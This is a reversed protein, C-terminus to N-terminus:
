NKLFTDAKDRAQYRRTIMEFIDDGSVGINDGGLKKSMGSVGADKKAGAGKGIKSMGGDGYGGGSGAGASSASGGGGGVDNTLSGIKAHAAAIAKPAENKLFDQVNSIDSGSFGADKMSDASSFASSAVKKGNPLTVSSGDASVSVGSAAAVKSASVFDNAIGGLGNAALTNATRATAGTVTTGDSTTYTANPDAKTVGVSGATNGYGSTLNSASKDSGSKNALAMGVQALSLGMMICMPISGSETCGHKALNAFVTSDMAAMLAIPMAAQAAAAAGQQLDARAQPGNTLVILGVILIKKMQKAM